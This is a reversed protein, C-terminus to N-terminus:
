RGDGEIEVSVVVRDVDAYREGVSGLVAALLEDRAGRKVPTIVEGSEAIAIDPIDNPHIALGYYESCPFCPRLGRALLGGVTDTADETRHIGCPTGPAHFCDGSSGESPVAVAIEEGFAAADESM